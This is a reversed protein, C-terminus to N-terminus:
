PAQAWREFAAAEATIAKLMPAKLLWGFLTIPWGTATIKLTLQTCNGPQEDVEHSAQYCVGNATGSWTYQRHTPTEQYDCVTWAVTGLNPQTISIVSALGFPTHPNHPAVKSFNPLREPWHIHDLQLAWVRDIPAAIPRTVSLDMNSIIDM